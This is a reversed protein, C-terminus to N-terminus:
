EPLLGKKLQAHCVEMNQWGAPEDMGPFLVQFNDMFLSTRLYIWLFFQNHATKKTDEYDYYFSIHLNRFIRKCSLACGM